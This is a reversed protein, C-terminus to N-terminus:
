PGSYISWGYRREPLVGRDLQMDMMRVNARKIKEQAKAAQMEIERTVVAGFAPALDLALQYTLYQRYGPPLTIDTDLSSLEAVASEAYLVGTLTSSTPVPWLELTGRANAGYTPNYWYHRPYTSELTKPTLGAWEDDTLPSMPFEIVPSTSTDRFNIHNIYVPRTVSVDGGSGITYQGTGSVISWTTEAESFITLREAAMQDIRENLTDLAVTSDRASMTESSYIVGLKQLASTCVDRATPM